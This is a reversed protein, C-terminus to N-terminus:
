SGWAVTSSPSISIGRGPNSRPGTSRLTVSAFSDLLREIYQPKTLLNPDIRCGLCGRGFGPSKRRKDFLSKGQRVALKESYITAKRLSADALVSAAAPNKISQIAQVFLNQSDKAIDELGELDDFFSWDERRHHDAHAQGPWNSTSSTPGRREPLCTTPLMIRGFDEIALAVGLRRDRHQAPHV